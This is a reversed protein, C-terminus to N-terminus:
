EAPYMPVVFPTGYIPHDIITVTFNFARRILNPTLVERATGVAILTQEALLALRDGFMAAHNLDHLTVVVVLNREKAM